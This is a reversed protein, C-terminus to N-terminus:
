ILLFIGMKGEASITSHFIESYVKWTKHDKLDWLGITKGAALAAGFSSCETMSPRSVPIGLVDAQMQMLLKNNTMGGSVQLVKLDIGSDKNMSEVIELNQFAVAELAARIIHARTTYQTIGIILGRADARWHPAFLGSFAPVFCVDGTDDVQQAIEDSDKTDSIIQLNDRLWNLAAGAIAM